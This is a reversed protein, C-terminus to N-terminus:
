VVSKRDTADPHHFESQPLNNLEDLCLEFEGCLFHSLSLYYHGLLNKKKHILIRARARVADHNCDSLALLIELAIIRSAFSMGHTERLMIDSAMKLARFDGVSLARYIQSPMSM